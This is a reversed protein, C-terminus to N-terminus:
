LILNFIPVLAYTLLLISYGTSKEFYVKFIYTTGNYGFQNIYQEIYKMQSKTFLNFVYKDNIKNLCFIFTSFMKKKFLHM